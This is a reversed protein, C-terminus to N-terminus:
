VWEMLAHPLTGIRCCLFSRDITYVQSANAVSDRPLKSKRRALLVNGPAAAIELNSTLIVTLVTEIRGSTHDVVGRIHRRRCRDREFWSSRRETEHAGGAGADEM